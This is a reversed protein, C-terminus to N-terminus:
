ENLKGGLSVFDEWFSPYSKNVSDKGRLVVDGTCRQSISAIMMAIRHDNYSALKASELRNVGIIVMGDHTPTINAGLLNLTNATSIIRDSEKIKLRKGGFITSKGNALAMAAAIAPALDPCQSVDVDKAQLKSSKVNLVDDQWSIEAGMSVLIDVIKRDGQLSDKDLGYIDIGDGFMGCLVLFAAQSWDGEVKYDAAVYKQRGSIEYGDAHQIIKIGFSKLTNITMDVYSASELEGIIKIYSDEDVMPLAMLMGTIYQSSINGPLKYVGGCLKGSIDLPLSNDGTNWVVGRDKFIKEYTDIPRMPLRGSGEFHGGGAVALAVPIMFRLTSGSENCDIQPTGSLNGTVGRIDLAKRRGDDRVKVEAGLRCVADITALIDSSLEVNSVTSIGEALASAIIARHAISKSPPAWIEGKLKAPHIIM